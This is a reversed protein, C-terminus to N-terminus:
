RDLYELVANAAERGSNVQHGFAVGPMNVTYVNRYLMNGDNGIAYLGEIPNRRGDLM